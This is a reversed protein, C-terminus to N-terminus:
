PGLFAGQLLPCLWNPVLFKQMWDKILLTDKMEPQSDLFHEFFCEKFQYRSLIWLLTFTGNVIEPHHIGSITM